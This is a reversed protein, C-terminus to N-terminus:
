QGNDNFVTADAALFFVLSVVYRNLGLKGM